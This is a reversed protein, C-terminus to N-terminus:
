REFVLSLDNRDKAADDFVSLVAATDQPTARQAAALNVWDIEVPGQVVGSLYDYLGDLNFGVWGPANLGEFVATIIDRKDIYAGNLTVRTPTKAANTM